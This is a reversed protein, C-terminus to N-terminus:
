KTFRANRQRLDFILSDCPNAKETKKYAQLDQDNVASNCHFIWVNSILHYLADGVYVHLSVSDPLFYAM